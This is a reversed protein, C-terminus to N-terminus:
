ENKDENASCSLGGNLFSITRGSVPGINLNIVTYNGQVVSPQHSIKSNGDLRTRKNSSIPTVISSIPTAISRPSRTAVVLTGNEGADLMTARKSKERMTHEQYEQATTLSSWRGAHCLAAVSIGAEALATARSRRFTHTTYKKKTSEYKDKGYLWFAAKRALESIKGKGMPQFRYKVGKCSKIANKM